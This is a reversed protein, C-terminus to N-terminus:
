KAAKTIAEQSNDESVDTVAVVHPTLMTKEEYIKAKISALAQLASQISTQDIESTLPILNTVDRSDIGIVDVSISGSLNERRAEIGLGLLSGLNLNKKSTSVRAKIRLGVGIKANGIIRDSTQSSDTISEVRYKMYDMVVVYEGKEGSITSNLYGLSANSEIKRVSVQASQIPLLSRKTTDALSSWYVREMTKGGPDYVEVTTHYVPEIPLYQIQNKQLKISNNVDEKVVGSTSCGALIFALIIYHFQRKM